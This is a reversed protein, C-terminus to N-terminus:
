AHSAVPTSDPAEEQALMAAGLAAGSAGAVSIFLTPVIGLGRRRGGLAAAVDATDCLVGLQLARSRAADDKAFVLAAGIAIDRVGFLRGILADRPDDAADGLAFLRSALRPFMWTLAGIGIRVLGFARRQQANM